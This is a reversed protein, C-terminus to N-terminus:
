VPGPKPPSAASGTAVGAGATVGRDKIAAQVWAIFDDTIANRNLENLSEHRTQAYIRTELNSFGNRSLRRALKAVAKGNGTAPDAAGGVLQIPMTRPIASLRGDDAGIAALDFVDRWMGVSADWGCLPDAVYAAVEAEDRSLWDFPTRAAPVADGWAGFTVRPLLRSAVDSGLRFREWALMTRASGSALRNPVATNWPALAAIRGAHRTAFALAILGGMSHGFAIVPRGPHNRAIREHVGLVDAIVKAAGNRGAFTGRPADPAATGGHGRHDHAYTAFGHDALRDAFRGYRAAHEALGHSVQVVALPRGEPIRSYLRLRAGTSSQLVTPADFPMAPFCPPHPIRALSPAHM